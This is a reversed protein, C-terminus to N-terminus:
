AEDMYGGEDVDDEERSSDDANHQQEGEEESDEGEDRTKAAKGTRTKKGPVKESSPGGGQNMIGGAAREPSASGDSAVGDEIQGSISSTGLSPDAIWPLEEELVRTCTLYRLPKSRETTRLQLHDELLDAIIVRHDDKIVEVADALCQKGKTSMAFLQHFEDAAHKDIYDCRFVTRNFEVGGDEHRHHRNAMISSQFIQRCMTLAQWYYIDSGYDARGPIKDPTERRILRQPYYQLLRREVDIKKDRLERCKREAVQLCIKGYEISNFSSRNILGPLELGGAIHIISERFIIASQLRVAVDSWAEPAKAVHVWLKQNIRLLYSEIYTSVSPLSGIFAAAQLISVCDTIYLNAGGDDIDDTLNPPMSYLMRFLNDYTREFSVEGIGNYAGASHLTLKGKKKEPVCVFDRFRHDHFAGFPKMEIWWRITHAESRMTKTINRPAVNKLLAGIKPAYNVLQWSHLKWNKGTPSMILVDGDPPFPNQASM